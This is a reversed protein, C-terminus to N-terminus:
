SLLWESIHFNDERALLFCSVSGLKKQSFLLEAEIYYGEKKPTAIIIGEYKGDLGPWHSFRWTEKKKEDEQKNHKTICHAVGYRALAQLAYHQKTQEIRELSFAYFLSSSRLFITVILSIFALILCLFLVASGTKKM